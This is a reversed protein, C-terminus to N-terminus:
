IPLFNNFNHFISYFFADSALENRANRVETLNYVLMCSFGRALGHPLYKVGVRTNLRLRVHIKELM